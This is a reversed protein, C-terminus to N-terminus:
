TINGMVVQCYADNCKEYRVQQANGLQWAVRYRGNVEVKCNAQCRQSCSRRERGIVQTCERRVGEECVIQDSLCRQVGVVLVDSAEEHATREGM